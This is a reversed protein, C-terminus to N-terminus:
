VQCSQEWMKQDQMKQDCMKLVGMYVVQGSYKHLLLITLDAFM